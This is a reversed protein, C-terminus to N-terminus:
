ESFNNISQNITKMIENVNQQVSDPLKLENAVDYNRTTMWDSPNIDANTKLGAGSPDVITQLHKKRSERETNQM